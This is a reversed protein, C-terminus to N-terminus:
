GRRQSESPPSEGGSGADSADDQELGLDEEAIEPPPADHEPAAVADVGPEAPEYIIAEESGAEVAPGAPECIVSEESDSYLLRERCGCQERNPHHKKKIRKAGAPNEEPKDNDEDICSM